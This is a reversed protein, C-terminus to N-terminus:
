VSVWLAKKYKEKYTFEIFLSFEPSILDVKSTTKNKLDVCVTGYPVHLLHSSLVSDPSM